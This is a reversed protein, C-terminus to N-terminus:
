HPSTTRLNAAVRRIESELTDGALEKLVFADVDAATDSNTDVPLGSLVVFGCRQNNESRLRRCAEQGSGDSLTMEAVVINALSLRAVDITEAVTGAVGVVDFDPQESLRDVVHGRTSSDSNAVVIRSFM